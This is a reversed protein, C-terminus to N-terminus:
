SFHFFICDKEQCACLKSVIEGFFNEIACIIEYIMRM